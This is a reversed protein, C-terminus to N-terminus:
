RSFIGSPFQCFPLLAENKSTDDYTVQVMKKSNESNLFSKCQICKQDAFLGMFHSSFLYIFTPCLVLNHLFGSEKGLAAWLGLRALKWPLPARAPWCIPLSPM